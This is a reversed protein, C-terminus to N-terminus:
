IYLKIVLKYIWYNRNGYGKQLPLLQLDNKKTLGQQLVYIDSKFVHFWHSRLISSFLCLSKCSKLSYTWINIEHNLLMLSKKFNWACLGLSKVFNCDHFVSCILLNCSISFNESIERLWESHHRHYTFPTWIVPLDWLSATATNRVMSAFETAARITLRCTTSSASTRASESVTLTTELKLWRSVHFLIFYIHIFYINAAANIKNLIQKIRNWM